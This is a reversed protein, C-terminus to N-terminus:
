NVHHVKTAEFARKQIGALKKHRVAADDVDDGKSRASEQAANYRRVGATHAEGYLKDAEAQKSRVGTKTTAKTALNTVVPRRVDDATLNSKGGLSVHFESRTKHRSPLERIYSM